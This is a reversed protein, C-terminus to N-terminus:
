EPYHIRPGLLEKEETVQQPDEAAKGATLTEQLYPQLTGVPATDITPKCPMHSHEFVNTDNDFNDNDQSDSRTSMAEAAALSLEKRQRELNREDPDSEYSKVKRLNNVYTANTTTSTIFPDIICSACKCKNKYFKATNSLLLQM